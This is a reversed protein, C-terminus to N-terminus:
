KRNRNIVLREIRKNEVVNPLKLLPLAFVIGLIFGPIALLDHISIAGLIIVYILVVSAVVATGKFVSVLFMGWLTEGCLLADAFPTRNRPNRYRAVGHKRDIEHIREQVAACYPSSSPGQPPYSTPPSFTHSYKVNRPDHSQFNSSM